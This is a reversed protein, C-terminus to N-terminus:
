HPSATSVTLLSALRPLHPSTSSLELRSSAVEDSPDGFAVASDGRLWVESKKTDVKSLAEGFGFIGTFKLMM